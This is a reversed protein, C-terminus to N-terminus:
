GQARRGSAGGSGESGFRVKEAHVCGKQGSVIRCLVRAPAPRGEALIGLRDAHGAIHAAGATLMHVLNAAPLTHGQNTLEQRAVKAETLLNTSGSPLWDAGLAIPLGVNLADAARTTEGYLRLNSQPSWVLKAGADALAGLQDRTLATGHIVVTAPTLAGLNVLQDFENISRQNNRQGEALHVYFADVEGADIGALIATLTDGGRDTLSAPLDIMTRAKHQGFIRLDVNRVLSETTARNRGSAGQIATVGGVLARIEAYRLQTGQPLASLLRNQPERILAQYHDSARWAYRNVYARPPEWPAFVNFEPHGHLDILGPLIIGDSDLTVADTPRRKRIGTVTGGEILLWGDEVPGDATIVCGGLALPGTPAARTAREPAPPADSALEETTGALYADLFRDTQPPMIWSGQSSPTVTNHRFPPRLPVIRCSGTDPPSYFGRWTDSQRVRFSSVWRLV